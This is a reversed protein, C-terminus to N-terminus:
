YKTKSEVGWPLERTGDMGGVQHDFGNGLQLHGSNEDRDVLAEFLDANEVCRTRM